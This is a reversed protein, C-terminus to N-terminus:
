FHSVTLYVVVIFIAVVAIVYLRLRRQSRM